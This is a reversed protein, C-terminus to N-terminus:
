QAEVVTQSTSGIKRQVAWAELDETDYVIRKGLKIYLPGGGCVRRKNLFSTSLGLYEAAQKVNTFSMRAEVTVQM